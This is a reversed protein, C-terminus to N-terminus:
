RCSTSSSISQRWRCLPAGPTTDTIFLGTTCGGVFVLEDLLPALLHVVSEFLARNPDAV